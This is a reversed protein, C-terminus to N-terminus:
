RANKPLKVLTWTDNSKLANMEDDMARHWKNSDECKVADEYSNPELISSYAAVADFYDPCRLTGRDRLQRREVEETDFNHHEYDPDDDIEDVQDESTATDEESNYEVNEGETNEEQRQENTEYDGFNLTVTSTEKEIKLTGSENFNVNCSIEIRRKKPDHTGVCSVKGNRNRFECRNKYSHHTFNRDTMVGVSFLCQSLEPIYLVNYMTRNQWQDDTLAQIEIIGSGKAAIVKDNAIKVHIPEDLRELKPFWEKHCTMHMSAGSDCIWETTKVDSSTQLAKVELALRSTETDENTVRLEEKLLRTTLNEFTQYESSVSDWATRFANYKSPLNNIVKSCIASSSINEDVDKLQKVLLEIASILEAIKANESM